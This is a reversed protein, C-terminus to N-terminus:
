RALKAGVNDLLEEISYRSLMWRSLGVSLTGDARKVWVTHKADCSVECDESAFRSKCAELLGTGGDDFVVAPEDALSSSATNKSWHM